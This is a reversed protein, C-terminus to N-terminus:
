FFNVITEKITSRLIFECAISDVQVIINYGCRGSTVAAGGASIAAGDISIGSRVVFFGVTIRRIMLQTVIDLRILDAPAMLEIDAIESPYTARQDKIKQM